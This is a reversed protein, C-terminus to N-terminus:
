TPSEEDPDSSETRSPSSRDPTPEPTTPAGSGRPTDSDAPLRGRALWQEALAPERGQDSPRYYGGRLGEPLYNQPVWHGPHDHPYVYGVGIGLKREGRFTATQLHSPVKGPPAARLEETADGLAKYASNSKPALALYVTAEALNLRAEPLGVFELAQFAAVALPLAQPDALGIDESASIVLRRAIFRPDEGAELMRALYHVAADPDSGRISKIFASAVDYHQDGARDYTVRPRQLADEVDGLTIRRSPVPRERGASPEPASPAAPGHDGPLAPEHDGPLAPEHDGPPAPEHDGPPAPEAVEPARGTVVLAAAELANLAHRADGDARQVLHELAEPDLELGQAGLGRDRDALARLVITKLEDPELPELRFLLSRSMLPTNLAFFPNETTAGILVVTRDEVGPLLADQQGKNFRHIEDIFLITRRGSAGLRQRAADLVARVDRVGASTASLEEFQSRTARAVIQALSTKGTGAPGWLIVSRLEDAEILARLASGPGLVHAQGVFEDLTRPRMRAALPATDAGIEAARASFLDM